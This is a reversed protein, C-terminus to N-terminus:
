INGVYNGFKQHLKERTKEVESHTPMMPNLVLPKVKVGHNDKMHEM